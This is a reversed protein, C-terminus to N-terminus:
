SFVSSWPHAVLLYENCMTYSSFMDVKKLAGPLAQPKHINPVLGTLTGLCPFINVPQGPLAVSLPVDLISARVVQVM